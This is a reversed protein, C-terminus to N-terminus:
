KFKKIRDIGYHRNYFEGFKTDGADIQRRILMRKIRKKVHPNDVKEFKAKKVSFRMGKYGNDYFDKSGAKFQAKMAKINEKQKKIGEKRDKRNSFPIKPDKLIKLELKANTAKRVADAYKAYALQEHYQSIDDFKGNKYDDNVAQETRAALMIRRVKKNAKFPNSFNYRITDDNKMSTRYGWRMGKVGYHEIDSSSKREFATYFSM